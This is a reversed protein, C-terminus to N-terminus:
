ADRLETSPSIAIAAEEEAPMRHKHLQQPHSGHTAHTLRQTQNTIGTILGVVNHMSPM